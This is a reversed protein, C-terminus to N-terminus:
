LGYVQAAEDLHQSAKSEFYASMDQMNDVGRAGTSEMYINYASKNGALYDYFEAMSLWILAQQLYTPVDAEAAFPAIGYIRLLSATVPTDDIYLLTGHHHFDSVRRWGGDFEDNVEIRRATHIEEPLAAMDIVSAIPVEQREVELGARPFLRLLSSDIFDALIVDYDSTKISLRKKVKDIVAM